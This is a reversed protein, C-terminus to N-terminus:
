GFLWVRIWHCAPAAAILSDFRDLIGGHGPLLRSFDKVGARRKIGSFALDGATAALSTAAGVLALRYAFVGASGAALVAVVVASAFGGAFGEVTKRPSLRPCLRRRGLARGWLQAYSDTVAVLLVALTFTDRWGDGRGGILHALAVVFVAFALAGALTRRTRVVRAIEIAGGAAIAGLLAAAAPRPLRAAGLLAGIVAVYVAYKTWEARRESRSAHRARTAIFVAGVAFLVAALLFADVRM